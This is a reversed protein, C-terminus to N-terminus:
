SFYWWVILKLCFVRHMYSSHQELDELTTKSKSHFLIAQLEKFEVLVGPERFWLEGDLILSAVSSDLIYM